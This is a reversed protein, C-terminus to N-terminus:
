PVCTHAYDTLLSFSITHYFPGAQSQRCMCDTASREPLPSCANQWVSFFGSNLAIAHPANAKLFDNVILLRWIFMHYQSGLFALQQLGLLSTIPYSRYSRYDVTM